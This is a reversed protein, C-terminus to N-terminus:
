EDSEEKREKVILNTNEDIIIHRKGCFMCGHMITADYVPHTDCNAECIDKQYRSM